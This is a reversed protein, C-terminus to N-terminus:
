PWRSAALYLSPLQLYCRCTHAEDWSTCCCVEGLYINAYSSSGGQCSVGLLIGLLILLGQARRLVPNSARGCTRRCTGYSLQAGKCGWAVLM